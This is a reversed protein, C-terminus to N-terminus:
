NLTPDDPARSLLRFWPGMRDLITTWLGASQAPDAVSEDPKAIIWTRHKIENELQGAGWGSYGIIARVHEGSRIRHIADERTLHTACRLGEAAHWSLAAFTLQETQVPGGYYVPVAALAAFDASPLLDGATQGSPRNLIFGHAGLDHQHEDLLIVARHFTPERLAPEALLLSGKLCLQSSDEISM